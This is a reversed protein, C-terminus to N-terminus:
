IENLIFIDRLCVVQAAGWLVLLSGRRRGVTKSGGAYVTFRCHITHCMESM